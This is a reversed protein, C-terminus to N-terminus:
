RPPVFIRTIFNERLEPDHLRVEDEVPLLPFRLMFAKAFLGVGKERFSGEGSESYVKVREM